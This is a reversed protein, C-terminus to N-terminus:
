SVSKRSCCRTEPLADAKRNSISQNETSPQETSSSPIRAARGSAQTITLLQTGATKAMEQRFPPIQQCGAAGNQISETVHQGFVVDEEAVSPSIAHERLLDGVRESSSTQAHPEVRVLDVVEGADRVRDGFAQRFRFREYGVIGRGIRQAAGTLPFHGGGEEGRLGFAVRSAAHQDDIGLVASVMDMGDLQAVGPKAVRGAGGGLYLLEDLGDDLMDALEAAWQGVDLRERRGGPIAHRRHAGGAEDSAQFLHPLHVRQQMRAIHRLDGACDRGRAADPLHLPQASHAFRQQRFLVRQV